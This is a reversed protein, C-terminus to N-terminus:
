PSIQWNILSVQRKVELSIPYKTGGGGGGGICAEIIKVCVQTKHLNMSCMNTEFKVWRLLRHSIESGTYGSQDSVYM